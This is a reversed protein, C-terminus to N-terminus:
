FRPDIDLPKESLDDYEEDSRMPGDCATFMEDQCKQCMGSIGFEKISLDDRFTSVDCSGQCWICSSTNRAQSRTQSAGLATSIADLANVM